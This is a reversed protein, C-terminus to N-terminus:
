SSGKGLEDARERAAAAESRAAELAETADELKRQAREAAKRAADAEREAERERKELARAHAKAAKLEERRRKAEAREDDQDRGAGSPSRGRSARGDQSGSAAGSRSRSAPDGRSRSSGGATGGGGGDDASGSAELGFGGLGAAQHEGTLRHAEFDARVEDDLAVSHLTQRARELAAASLESGGDAAALGVAELAAEVAERERAGAERVESSSGKGGVLREQAERLAAGADLLADRLGQERGSVQDIAWAVRSPKRLARVQKAADADGESRLQKALEDRAGVFDELPELYLDDIANVPAAM